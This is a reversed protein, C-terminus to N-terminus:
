DWATHGALSETWQPLLPPRRRDICPYVADNNRKKSTQKMIVEKIEICNKWFFVRNDDSSLLNKGACFLQRFAAKEECRV